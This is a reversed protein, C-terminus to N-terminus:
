SNNEVVLRYLYFILININIVIIIIYDQYWTLEYM